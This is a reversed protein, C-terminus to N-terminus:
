VGRNVTGYKKKTKVFGLYDNQIKKVKNEKISILKTHTHFMTASM